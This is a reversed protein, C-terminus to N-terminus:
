SETLQNYIELLRSKYIEASYHNKVKEQLRRAYLQRVSEHEILSALAGAFKRANGPPVLLGNIEHEIVDSIGGVNTSVVALGALGYELIAL